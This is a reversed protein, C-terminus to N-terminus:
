TITNYINNQMYFWPFTEKLLRKAMILLASYFFRGTVVKIEEM